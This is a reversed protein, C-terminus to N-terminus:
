GFERLCKEGTLGYSFILQQPTQAILSLADMNNKMLLVKKVM